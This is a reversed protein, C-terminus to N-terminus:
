VLVELILASSGTVTVALCAVARTTLVNAPVHVITAVALSESLHLVEPVTPVYSVPATDVECTFGYNLKAQKQFCFLLSSIISAPCNYM